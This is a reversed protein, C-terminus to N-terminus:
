IMGLGTMGKKSAPKVQAKAKAGPKAKKKM